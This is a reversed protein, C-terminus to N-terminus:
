AREFLDLLHLPVRGPTFLANGIHNLRTRIPADRPLSDPTHGDRHERTRSAILRQIIRRDVASNNFQKPLRARIGPVCRFGVGESLSYLARSTAPSAKNSLMVNEIYPELRSATIQDLRRVFRIIRPRRIKIEFTPVLIPSPEM